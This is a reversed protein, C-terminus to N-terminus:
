ERSDEQQALRGCILLRYLTADLRRDIEERSFHKSLEPQKEFALDALSPRNPDRYRARM